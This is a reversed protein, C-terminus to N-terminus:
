PDSIGCLGVSTTGGWVLTVQWYRGSNRGKNELEFTGYAM